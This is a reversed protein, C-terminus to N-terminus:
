TSTVTRESAAPFWAQEIHRAGVLVSNADLSPAPELVCPLEPRALRAFRQFDILGNPPMVHDEAPPTVDHVHMGCLWPSALELSNLHNSFGLIERIQGHGTDHWYRIHRSSFHKAIASVELENPIAEWTPLIEYGLVVNSSELVPLLRALGDLVHALHQRVKKERKMVAKLKIREYKETYRKGARFLVRLKRSYDRMRINGCHIVVVQAGLEGALRITNATHEIAKRRSSERPDGLTHWEPHGVGAERPVPCYNHLSTVQVEGGKVKDRIGPLHFSHLNYGLEIRTFGLNLVEDVISEGREHRGANWHTSISLIM